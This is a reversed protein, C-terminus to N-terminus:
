SGLSKTWMILCPSSLLQLFLSVNTSSKKMLVLCISGESRPATISLSTAIIDIEKRVVMGVLGTWSGNKKSGWQGDVSPILQMKFGYISQFSLLIDKVIGSLQSMTKFDWDLPYEIFPSHSGIGIKFTISSMDTRRDWKQKILQGGTTQNLVLPQIIAPNKKMSFIEYVDWTMNSNEQLLYIDSDFRPLLQQTLETHYPLLYTLIWHELVFPVNLNPNTIVTLGSGTIDIASWEQYLFVILFACNLKSKM